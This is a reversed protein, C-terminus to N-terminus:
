CVSEYTTDEQKNISPKKWAGFSYSANSSNSFIYANESFAKLSQDLLSPKKDFLNLTLTIAKLPKYSTQLHNQYLECVVLKISDSGIDISAYVREM